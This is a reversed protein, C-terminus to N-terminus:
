MTSRLIIPAGPWGSKWCFSSMIFFDLDVRVVRGVRGVRGVWWGEGIGMEVDVLSRFGPAKGLQAVRNRVEAAEAVSEADWLKGAFSALISRSGLAQGM